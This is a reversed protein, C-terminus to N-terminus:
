FNEFILNNIKSYKKFESKKKITYFYKKIKLQQINRSNLFIKDLILFNIKKNKSLKIIAKIKSTNSFSLGTKINPKIKLLNYINKHNFSIFICKKFKSTEKILNKLIRISFYPKIEIFLLFKNKSAKLVDSLLPIPKRKLTSIKSLYFYDLNKVSLNKKFIRNLTFDHFCIFKNDKTSHIDTEIGFGMSFSKKFSKLTNEKYNKNVLGRHIIHM